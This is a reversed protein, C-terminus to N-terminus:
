KWFFYITQNDERLCIFGDFIKIAKYVNLILTLEKIRMNKLLPVLKM